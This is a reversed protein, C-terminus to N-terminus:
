KVEEQEIQRAQSLRRQEGKGTILGQSNEAHYERWNKFIISKSISRVIICNVHWGKCARSKLSILAKYLNKVSATGQIPLEAERKPLILVIEQM